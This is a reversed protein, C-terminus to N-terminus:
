IPTGAEPQQPFTDEVSCSFAMVVARFNRLLWNIPSVVNDGYLLFGTRPSALEHYLTGGFAM